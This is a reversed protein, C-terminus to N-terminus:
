FLKFKRVTKTTNWPDISSVVLPVNGRVCNGCSIREKGGLNRFFPVAEITNFYYAPTVDERMTSVLKWRNGSKEYKEIVVKGILTTNFDGVYLADTGHYNSLTWSYKKKFEKYNM